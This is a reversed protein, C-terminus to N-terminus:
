ATTPNSPEAEASHMTSTLATSSPATVSPMTMAMHRFSRVEATQSEETVADGDCDTGARQQERDSGGDHNVWPPEIRGACRHM